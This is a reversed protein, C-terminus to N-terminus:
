RGLGKSHIKPLEKRINYGDLSVAIRLSENIFDCSITEHQVEEVFNSKDVYGQLDSNDPDVYDYGCVLDLHLYAMANPHLDISKVEYILNDRNEVYIQKSLDTM